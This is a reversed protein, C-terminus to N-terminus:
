KIREAYNKQLENFKELVDDGQWISKLAAEMVLYYDETILLNPMMISDEYASFLQEIHKDEYEVNKKCSIIGSIDYMNDAYDYSIYEALKLALDRNDTRPNVALVDTYSLGKCLIDKTLDPMNIISYDIDVDKLSAVISTNALMFVTQDKSFGSVLSSYKEDGAISFYDKLLLYSNAADCVNTNNIDVINKSGDNFRIYSGVFGYSYLLSNVDLSLISRIKSYDITQATEKSADEEDTPNNFNDAYSKIDEFTSIDSQSYANNVVMACVDFGLPFGYLNEGYKVAEIANNAFNELAFKEVSYNPELVGLLYAKELYESGMIFLDPGKNELSMNNIYDLYGPESIYTVKVQFKEGTASKYAEIAKNLYEEYGKYVYWIDITNDEQSQINEQQKEEEKIIEKKHSIAASVILAGIICMIVVSIIRIKM